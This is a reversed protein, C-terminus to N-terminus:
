EENLVKTQHVFRLKKVTSSESDARHRFSSPKVTTDRLLAPQPLKPTKRYTSPPQASLRQQRRGTSLVMSTDNTPSPLPRVINRPDKVPLFSHRAKYSPEQKTPKEPACPHTSEFKVSPQLVSATPAYNRYTGTLAVSSRSSNWDPRSRINSKGRVPPDTCDKPSNLFHSPLHKEPAFHRENTFGRRSISGLKQSCRVSSRNPGADLHSKLPSDSLRNRLLILVSEIIFEKLLESSPSILDNVRSHEYNDTDSLDKIPKPNKVTSRHLPSCQLSRSLSRKASGTSNRTCYRFEQENNRHCDPLFM